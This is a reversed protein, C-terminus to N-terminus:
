RWHGPKYGWGRSGEHHWHGSEWVAGRHPRRDWYGGELAWNGGHYGWYGGIWVADPYPVAPRVEVLPEPPPVPAYAAYPGPAPAYAVCGGLLAMILLAGSVVLCLNKM